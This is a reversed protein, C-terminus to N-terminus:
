NIVGTSSNYTFSPQTGNPKTATLTFSSPTTVTISLSVGNTQNLGIALLETVSTPYVKKEAFYAEMAVAANALDSKMQSDIARARYTMFQSVAIGVLLGIVSIAVLLEVLSFGWDYHATRARFRRLM